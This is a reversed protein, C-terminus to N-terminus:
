RATAPFRPGTLRHMTEAVDNQSYASVFGVADDGSFKARHAHGGTQLVGCPKSPPRYKRDLM